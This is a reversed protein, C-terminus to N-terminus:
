NTLPCETEHLNLELSGPNSDEMSFLVVLQRREIRFDSAQALADFNVVDFMYTALALYSLWSASPDLPSFVRQGYTQPM